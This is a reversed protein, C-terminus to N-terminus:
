SFLPSIGEKRKFPFLQHHFSMQMGTPSEVPKKTLLIKENCTNQFVGAVFSHFVKTMDPTAHRSFFTHYAHSYHITEMTASNTESVILPISGARCCFEFWHLLLHSLTLSSVHFWFVAQRNREAQLPNRASAMSSGSQSYEIDQFPSFVLKLGFM